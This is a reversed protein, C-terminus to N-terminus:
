VANPILDSTPLQEPQGATLPQGQGMNQQMMQAQAAMDRKKILRDCDAIFTRLLEEARRLRERNSVGYLQAMFVLNELVTLEDYLNSTEPVVGFEKKALTIGTNINHGLVHATGSNPRALGTLVRVTTTKGAGNPGLFGFVEGTKVQFNIGNVAALGDYYKSLGSVNIANTDDKKM